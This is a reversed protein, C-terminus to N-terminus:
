GLNIGVIIFSISWQQPRLETRQEKQPRAHERMMTLNFQWLIIMMKGRSTERPTYHVGILIFWARGGWMIHLSECVLLGSLKCGNSYRFGALGPLSTQIALRPMMFAAIVYRPHTNKRAKRINKEHMNSSTINIKLAWCAPCFIATTHNM